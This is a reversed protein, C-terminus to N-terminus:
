SDLVSKGLAGCRPRLQCINQPIPIREFERWFSEIQRDCDFAAFVHGVLHLEGSSRVTNQPWTTTKDKASPEGGVSNRLPLRVGKNVGDKSSTPIRMNGGSGVSHVWM